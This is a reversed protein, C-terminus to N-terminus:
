GYKFQLLVEDPSLGQHPTKLAGGVFHQQFHPLGILSSLKSPSSQFSNTKTIKKNQINQYHDPKIERNEDTDLIKQVKGRAMGLLTKSKMSNAEIPVIQGKFIPLKGIQENL